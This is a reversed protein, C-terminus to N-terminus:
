YKTQNYDHKDVPIAFESVVKNEEKESRKRRVECSSRKNKKLCKLVDDHTLNIAQQKWLIDRERQNGCIAHKEVLLEEVFKRKWCYM